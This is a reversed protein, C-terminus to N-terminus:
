STVVKEEPAADNRVNFIAGNTMQTCDEEEKGENKPVGLRKNDPFVM